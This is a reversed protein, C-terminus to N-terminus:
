HNGPKFLEVAQRSIVALAGRIEVEGEGGGGMGKKSNGKRFFFKGQHTTM